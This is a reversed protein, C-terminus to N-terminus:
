HLLGISSVIFRSKSYGPAQGPLSGRGARTINVPFNPWNGSVCELRAVLKWIVLVSVYRVELSSLILTDHRGECRETRDGYLTGFRGGTQIKLCTKPAYHNKFCPRINM